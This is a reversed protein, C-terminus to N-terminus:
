CNHASAAKLLSSNSEWCGCLLEFNDTVGTKLAGMGEEPRQAHPQACVLVPRVVMCIFYNQKFFFFFSLSAWSILELSGAAM